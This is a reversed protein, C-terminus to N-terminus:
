VGEKFKPKWYGCFHDEKVTNPNTGDDNYSCAYGRFYNGMYSYKCDKCTGIARRNWLDISDNECFTRGHLKAGCDECYVWHPFGMDMLKAKGGCFPCPKLKQESM